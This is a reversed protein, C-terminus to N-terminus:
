FEELDGLDSDLMGSKKMKVFELESGSYVVGDSIPYGEIDVRVYRQTAMYVVARVSSVFDLLDSAEIEVVFEGYLDLRSDDSSVRLGSRFEGNGIGYFCYYEDCLISEVSWAADSDVDYISIKFLHKM